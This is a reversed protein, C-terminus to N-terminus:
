FIRFFYYSFGSPLIYVLPGREARCQPSPPPNGARDWGAFIISVAPFNRSLILALNEIKELIPFPFPQAVLDSSNESFDWLPPPDNGIWFNINCVKPVKFLAKQAPFQNM